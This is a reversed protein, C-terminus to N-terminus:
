VASQRKDVMTLIWNSVHCLEDVAMRYTFCSHLEQHDVSSCSFHVIQFVMIVM